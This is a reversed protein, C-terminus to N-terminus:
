CKHKNMRMNSSTMKEIAWVGCGDVRQIFNPMGKTKIYRLKNATAAVESNAGGKLKM